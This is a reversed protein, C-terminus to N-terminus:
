KSNPKVFVVGRLFAIRLTEVPNDQTSALSTSSKGHDKRHVAKGLADKLKNAAQGSLGIATVAAGGMAGATRELLNKEVIVHYEKARKEAQELDLSVGLREAASALFEREENALIGDYVAMLTLLEILAKRLEPDELKSVGDLISQENSALRNFDAPLHEEFLCGLYCPM